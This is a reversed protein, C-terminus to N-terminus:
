AIGPEVSWEKLKTQIYDTMLTNIIEIQDEDLNAMTVRDRLSLDDIVQDVIEDIAKQNM